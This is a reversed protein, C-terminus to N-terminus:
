TSNGSMKEIVHGGNCKSHPYILSFVFCFLVCRGRDGLSNLINLFYKGLQIPLKM